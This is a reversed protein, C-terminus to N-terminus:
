GRSRRGGPPGTPCPGRVGGPLLAGPDSPRPCDPGAPGLAGAARSSWRLPGPGGAPSWSRERALTPVRPERTRGGLRPLSARSARGAVGAPYPVRPGRTRGDKSQIKAGDLSVNFGITSSSARHASRSSFAFATFFVAVTRATKAHIATSQTGTPPLSNPRSPEVRNAVQSWKILHDVTSASIEHPAPRHVQTDSPDCSNEM